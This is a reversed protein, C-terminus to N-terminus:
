RRGTEDPKEVTITGTLSHARIAHAGSGYSREVFRAGSFDGPGSTEIAGLASSLEVRADANRGLVIRVPGSVSSIDLDDELADLTVTVAGTVTRVSRARPCADLTVAGTVTRITVPGSVSSCAVAGDVTRAELPGLADSVSIDGAVTDLVLPAKDPTKLFYDIRGSLDAKWAGPLRTSLRLIDPRSEVSMAVDAAHTRATDLSRHFATQIAKLEIESQAHGQVAIRGSAESVRIQQTSSWTLTKRITRSYRRPPEPAPDEPEPAAHLLCAFACAFCVLLAARLFVTRQKSYAM